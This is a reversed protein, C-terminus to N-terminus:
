EPKRLPYEGAAYLTQIEESSFREDGIQMPAQERRHFFFGQVDLPHSRQPSFWLHHWDAPVICGAVRDPPRSSLRSQLILV